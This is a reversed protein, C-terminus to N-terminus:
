GLREYLLRNDLHLLAIDFMARYVNRQLAAREADSRNASLPSIERIKQDLVASWHADSETSVFKREEPVIVLHELLEEILRAEFGFRSTVPFRLVPVNELWYRKIHLVEHVLACRTISDGRYTIVAHAIGAEDRPRLEIDDFESAADGSRVVVPSGALNEADAVVKQLVEPLLSLFRQDM